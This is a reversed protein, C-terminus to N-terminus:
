GNLMEESGDDAPPHRQADDLAVPNENETNAEVAKLNVSQVNGVIAKNQSDVGMLVFVIEEKNKTEKLGSFIRLGVCDPQNFLDLISQKNFSESYPLGEKNHIAYKKRFDKIYKKATELPIGHKKKLFKPEQKMENKPKPPLL